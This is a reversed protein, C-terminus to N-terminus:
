KIENIIELVGKKIGLYFDGKKFEPVMFTDIIFKAEEDKLKAELGYGVQIRIERIQKGLVILIGNDKDAKGVGWYNGLNLSYDFLSKYPKYSAITVVAIENSTLKEHVRIIQSLDDIQNQTLVGEFDNVYGINEPLRFYEQPHSQSHFNLAVITFLCTLIIIRLKM